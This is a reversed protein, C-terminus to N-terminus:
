RVEFTTELSAKQSGAACWVRVGRLGIPQNGSRVAWQWRALGDADATRPALPISYADSFHGQRTGECDAGPQTKVVLTVMGGPRVPSNNEVVKLSLDDAWALSCLGTLVAIAITRM